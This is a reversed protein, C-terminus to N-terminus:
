PRQNFVPNRNRLELERYIGNEDKKNYTDLQDGVKELLNLSSDLNVNKAYVLIYEHTKAFFRDLTRGRPNLQAVVCAVFNLGNFIEDMILRLNTIENDDVSIFIVGDETLLERLLKLLPTMMCLWKDHRTLDENDVPKNAKLWEQMMPSNVNDSYIWGENGTNYPPDIYIVDVAKNHTFNLVALSHYNDGEIM